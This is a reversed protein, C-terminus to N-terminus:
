QANTGSPLVGTESCVCVSVFVCVCQFLCVGVGGCLCVRFCVHVCVPMSQFVGVWANFCVRLAVSM